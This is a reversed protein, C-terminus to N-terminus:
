VKVNEKRKERRITNRISNRQKILKDIEIRTIVLKKNQGSDRHKVSTKEIQKIIKRETKLQSNITQIRQELKKINM